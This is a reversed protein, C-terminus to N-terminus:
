LAFMHIERYYSGGKWTSERYLVVEKGHTNGILVVEKGHECCSLCWSNGLYKEHANPIQWIENILVLQCKTCTTYQGHSCLCSVLNVCENISEIVDEHAFVHYDLRGWKRICPINNVISIIFQHGCFMCESTRVCESEEKFRRVHSM